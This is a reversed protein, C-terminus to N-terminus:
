GNREIMAWYADSADVKKLFDNIIETPRGFKKELDSELTEWLDILGLNVQCIEECAKCHMCQFIKDAEEKTVSAGSLYKKAFELKGKPTVGEDKTILYAPCVALCSGCKACAYSSLKRDLETVKKNKGLVLTVIPGILWSLAVMSNMSLNMVAPHMLLGPINFWKSKVAFFKGPNMIGNPDTKKKFTRLSQLKGADFMYNIFPTFWIGLGYPRAGCSVAVRTLIMIMPLNIMYKLKRSDCLFEASVMARTSDIIYSYTDITIGFRQGVEKAKAIFGAANKIPIIVECALITPGLRKSKMGFLRQNWLYGAVHQPAESVPIRSGAIYKLFADDDEKTDFVFLVGDKHQFTEAHMLENMEHLLDKDVFRIVDPTFKKPTIADTIITQIFAFADPTDKAYVLRPHYSKKFEKLKLTIETIIGFQGESGILSNFEPEKRTLKRSEGSPFVVQISVVQESIHGYRFNNIGYGGTMLWGGVTSFKSSPYTMLCLGQQKAITDIDSWRAGAEMTITKEGTNLTLVNRFSALDIVIGRRTPIVGGFGSSATGRPIVPIKHTNAFVLVKKIEDLTKPQVVIDPMIDFFTASFVPPLDGIDHSYILKEGNKEIIKVDGAAKRLEEAIKM